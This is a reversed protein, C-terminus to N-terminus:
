VALHEDSSVATDLSWESGALYLVPNPLYRTNMTDCLTRRLKLLLKTDIDADVSIRIGTRDSM